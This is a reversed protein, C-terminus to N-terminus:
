LVRIIEPVFVTLGILLSATPIFGTQTFTDIRASKPHRGQYLVPLMRGPSYRVPTGVAPQFEVPIGNKPSFRIVPRRLRLGAGNGQDSIIAKRHADSSVVLGWARESSRRIGRMRVIGGMGVALFVLGVVVTM